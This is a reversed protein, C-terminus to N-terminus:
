NTRDQHQDGTKAHDRRDNPRQELFNDVGHRDQPGQPRPRSSRSRARRRKARHELILSLVFILNSILALLGLVVSFLLNHNFLSIVFLPLTILLIITDFVNLAHAWRNYPPIMFQNQQHFEFKFM